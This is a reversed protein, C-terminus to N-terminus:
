KKNSSPIARPFFLRRSREYGAPRLPGAFKKPPQFGFFHTRPGIAHKERPSKRATVIRRRCRVFCIAPAVPPLLSRPRRRLTDDKGEETM